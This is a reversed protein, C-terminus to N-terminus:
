QQERRHSVSAVCPSIAGKNEKHPTQALLEPSTNRWDDNNNALSPAAPRTLGSKEWLGGAERCCCLRHMPLDFATNERSHDIDPTQIQPTPRPTATATPSLHRESAALSRQGPLSLLSRRLSRYLSAIFTLLSRTSRILTLPGLDSTLDAERGYGPDSTMPRVTLLLFVLQGGQSLSRNPPWKYYPGTSNSSVSLSYYVSNSGQVM